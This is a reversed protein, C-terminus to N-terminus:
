SPSAVQAVGGIWVGTVAEEYRGAFDHIVRSLVSEQDDHRQLGGPIKLAVVDARYGPCLAGRREGEGMCRAGELTAMRFASSPSLEACGRHVELSARLVDLMSLDPGAGVDTALAVRVGAAQLRELPMRGSGLAQNSTPCHAVWSRSSALVALDADDLHIGHGFVSRSGLLGFDEYVATYSRHSPFLERVWAVEDLNEALHTQLFSSSGRLVEGCHQLLENSCSPAFRPTVAYRDGWRRAAAEMQQRATVPSRLLTDPGHRDMLVDGGKLCLPTDSELVAEASSAHPSGYVLAATTGVRLLARHFEQVVAAQYDLDQFREEEPWIHERLWPLLAEGFRGRVRLQPMHVHVDILGPVLLHDQVGREERERAGSPASVLEGQADWRVCSHPLFRLGGEPEPTLVHGFLAQPELEPPSM